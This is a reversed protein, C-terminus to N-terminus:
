KETLCHAILNLRILIRGDMLGLISLFDGDKYPEITVPYGVSGSTRRGLHYLDYRKGNAQNGPLEMVDLAAAAARAWKTEDYEQAILHKGDFNVM